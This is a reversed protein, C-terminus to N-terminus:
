GDDSAASGFVARGNANWEKESSHDGEAAIIQGWRRGVKAVRYVGYNEGIKDVKDIKVRIEQAAYFNEIWEWGQEQVEQDSVILYVQGQELLAWKVSEIGYQGIKERYLPSGCMWGGLIDYNAYDCGTGDFILRSFAVTSYVDEFYFNERHEKCYADIAYWNENVQARRRQEAQLAPVGAVVGNILLLVFFVAAAGAVIRQIMGTSGCALVADDARQQSHRCEELQVRGPMRIMMGVLLAYEVLYLSHTIREPDRERLLIFMWVASRMAILLVVQWLLDFRRIGGAERLGAKTQKGNRVCDYIGAAFVVGYMWLLLTSYPADGGRFTRHYYRYLQKRAIMGWDKANRLVDAAYDAATALLRTDITDDLGYNYNRLLTQQVPTVGLQTLAEEYRDEQILEPYFDYVITRAEFFAVFDKWEASGYAVHDIGSSLLMGALISGLVGGYKILNEKVFIKKEGTLRYLGALGIFPLTLLLMESRLQYALVALMISPIQWFVFRGAPWGPAEPSTLFLFVATASLMASTVTYQIHVLHSLCCGWMFFSLVLLVFCKRMWGSNRNGGAEEGSRLLSALSLFRPIGQSTRATLACLRVGALYFCGFQCLLLFLGYWPIKDCMRYCFAILAGLPYLTQMNHGDPTGSYAGSMIDLMMTDDNLDYYFDFCIGMLLVNVAVGFLTLICNGYKKFGSGKEM